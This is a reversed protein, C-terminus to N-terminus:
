GTFALRSTPEEAKCVHVLGKLSPKGSIRPLEPKALGLSGWDESDVEMYPWPLLVQLWQLGEADLAVVQRGWVITAARRTGRQGGSRILPGIDGRGRRYGWGAGKKGELCCGRRSGEEKKRKAPERAEGQHSLWYLGGALEGGSRSGM